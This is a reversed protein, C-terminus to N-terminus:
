HGAHPDAGRAMAEHHPGHHNGLALIGHVGLGRIRAVAGADDPEAAVATLRAGGEIPSVTLRMGGDDAAMAAAHASTMRRIAAAVEPPGTVEAAFGGAVDRVAVRSRMTVLDMDILHQRLREISVKSWDTTPDADLRAVIEAIAGFAAQGPAAPASTAIDAPHTMGEVHQHSQATLPSGLALLALATRTAPSMPTEWDTSTSRTSHDGMLPTPTM